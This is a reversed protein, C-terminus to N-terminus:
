KTQTASSSPLMTSHASSGSAALEARQQQRHAVLFVAHAEGAVVHRHELDEDEAQRAASDPMPPASNVRCTPKM